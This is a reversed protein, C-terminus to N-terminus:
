LLDNKWHSYDLRQQAERADKQIRAILEPTLRKPLDDYEGHGCCVSKDYGNVEMWQEPTMM